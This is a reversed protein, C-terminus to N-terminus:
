KEPVPPSTTKRHKLLRPNDLRWTDVTNRSGENGTVRFDRVLDFVWENQTDDYQRLEVYQSEDLPIGFQIGIGRFRASFKAIAKNSIKSVNDYALIDCAFFGRYSANFAQEWRALEEDTKAIQLQQTVFELARGRNRLTGVVIVQDEVNVPSIAPVKIVGGFVAIDVWDGTQGYDNDGIHRIADVYGSFVAVGKQLNVSKAM